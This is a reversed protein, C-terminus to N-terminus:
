AAPPSSTECTRSTLWSSPVAPTSGRCSRPRTSSRAAAGTPHQTQRDVVDFVALVTAIPEPLGRCQPNSASALSRAEDLLRQVVDRRRQALAATVLEDKGGPFHRYLSMKAVKAAAAIGEVGTAAIGHQYILRATAALLRQRV